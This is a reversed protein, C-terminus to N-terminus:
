LKTSAPTPDFILAGFALFIILTILILSSVSYACWVRLIQAEISTVYLAYALGMGAFCVTLARRRLLALVALLAYGAIGLAAVPIRYVEASPSQNVYASNWNSNVVDIPEVRTAYHGALALSSVAIGGIALVAIVYRM